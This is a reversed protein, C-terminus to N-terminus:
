PAAGGGGGDSDWGREPVRRQLHLIHLADGGHVDPKVKETRGRRRHRHLTRARDVRAPVRSPVPNSTIAVPDSRAQSLSPAAAHAAGRRGRWDM